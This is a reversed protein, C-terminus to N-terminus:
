VTARRPAATAPKAERAPEAEVRVETTSVQAASVQAASM